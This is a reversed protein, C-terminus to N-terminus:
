VGRTQIIFFKNVAEAIAFYLGVITMSNKCVAVYKSM